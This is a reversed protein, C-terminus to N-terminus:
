HLQHDSVAAMTANVHAALPPGTADGGHGHGGGFSKLIELFSFYSGNASAVLGFAILSADMVLMLARSSGSTDEWFAALHILPPLTISLATGSISGFFDMMLNLKPVSVALVFSLLVLVTRCYYEYRANQKGRQRALALSAGTTQRGGASATEGGAGLEERPKQPSLEPVPEIMLKSSVYGWIIENPVYFQLPYSLFLSVTFIARVMDYLPEKPLNLTISDAVESGFRLYGLVGLLMYLGLLLTYSINVLGFLGGMQEQRKMRTYIPLVVSIGEFAFMASGFGLAVESAPKFYEVRPKSPMDRLLYEIVISLGVVQLLNACASAIALRKLTKIYSLLLAVPLIALFLYNKVV